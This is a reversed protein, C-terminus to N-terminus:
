CSLKSRFYRPWIVRVHKDLQGVLSKYKALEADRTATAISDKTRLYSVTERLIRNGLSGVLTIIPHCSCMGRQCMIKM